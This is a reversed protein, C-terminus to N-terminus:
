RCVTLSIAESFLEVVMKGIGISRNLPKMSRRAGGRSSGALRASGSRVDPSRNGATRPLPFALTQHSLVEDTTLRQLANDLARGLQLGSLVVDAVPEGVGLDQCEALVDTNGVAVQTLRHQFLLRPGRRFDHRSRPRPQRTGSRDDRVPHNGAIPRRDLAREAAPHRLFRKQLGLPM